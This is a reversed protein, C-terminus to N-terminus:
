AKYLLYINNFNNYGKKLLYVALITPLISILNHFSLISRKEKNNIRYNEIIVDNIILFGVSSYFLGSSINYITKIFNM